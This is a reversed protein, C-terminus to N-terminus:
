VRDFWLMLSLSSSFFFFMFTYNILCDKWRSAVANVNEFRFNCFHIAINWYFFRFVANSSSFFFATSVSYPLFLFTLFEYNVEYLRLFRFPWTRWSSYLELLRHCLLYHAHVCMYLSFPFGNELLRCYHKIKQMKLAPTHTDRLYIYTGYFVLVVMSYYKDKEHFCQKYLIKRKDCM